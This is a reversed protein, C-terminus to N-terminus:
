AWKTTLLILILFALGSILYFKVSRATLKGVLSLKFLGILPYYCIVAILGLANYNFPLFYIAWALQALLLAVLFIYAPSVSLKNALFIQYVALIVVAAASLILIWLPPGLFAELGYIASFSFFIVLLNGYSSINELFNPKGPYINKLYFYSILLNLLFLLHIVAQNVLLLSYVALSSSFLVPLISFNWFEKQTIKKGTIIRVALLILFISVLLAPYFLSV